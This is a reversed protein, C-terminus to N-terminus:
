QNCGKSNIIITNNMVSFNTGPGIAECIIKLKVFLPEDMLTTTLACDALLKEEIQINVNYEKSLKRFIETVPADNFAYFNETAPTPTVAKKVDSRVLSLEKRHFTVQQNPTLDIAPVTKQGKKKNFASVNVKGTKVIVTFSSHNDFARVTFSTGLVRTVMENAFVYFPRRADKTVEFFAQGSLYVERKEGGFAEPFHIRSEPQLLVTSGDPLAVPIIHTTHNNKEVMAVGAVVIKKDALLDKRLMDNKRFFLLGALILLIVSAAVWVPRSQSLPYTPRERHLNRIEHLTNDIINEVFKEPLDVESVATAILLQRAQIALERQEPNAHLLKTWEAHQQRFGGNSVWERFSPDGLYDDVEYESFDKM